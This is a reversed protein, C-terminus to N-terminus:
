ASTNWPTTPCASTRTRRTRRTRPCRFSCPSPSTLMRLMSTSFRNQSGPTVSMCSDSCKKQVSSTGLLWRTRLHRLQLSAPVRRRAPSGTDTRRCPPCTRLLRQHHVPVVVRLTLSPLHQLVALEHPLIHQIGRLIVRLHRRPAPVVVPLIREHEVRQKRPPVGQPYPYTSRHLDACFCISRIFWAIRLFCAPPPSAANKMRPRRPSRSCYASQVLGKTCVLPFRPASEM